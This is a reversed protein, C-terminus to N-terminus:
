KIVYCPCAYPHTQSVTGGAIPPAQLSSNGLAIRKSPASTLDYVGEGTPSSSFHSDNKRRRKDQSNLDSRRIEQVDEDSSSSEQRGFSLAGSEQRVPSVRRDEEREIEHGPCNGPALGGRVLCQQAVSKGEDTLM